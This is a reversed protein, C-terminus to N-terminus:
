YRSEEEWYSNSTKKEEGSSSAPNKKWASGSSNGSDAEGHSWKSGSNACASILVIFVIITMCYLKIRM